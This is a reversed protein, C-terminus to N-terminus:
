GLAQISTIAVAGTVDDPVCGRSLDNVPKAMGQLIPGYAEAGALRQAAKYCINGAGLDPFIFINARGEIPSGPAKMGAVDPVYAADFQLEGDILVDSLNMEAIKTKALETAQIVKETADSKASGKTSYSLMAIRTDFGFQKATLATGVAIDALQEATPNEVLGCDAFLLTKDPWCMFFMSSVTRISGKSKIVQLAPRITDGTAHCAGAVLGDADDAKLMMTGFYIPNEVLKAAKEPTLGKHKRLDYLLNAYKQKQPATKPDLVQIKKIDAGAAKLDWTVRDVDGLITINAVNKDIIDRASQIIREDNGEPLVIHKNLQSAKSLTDNIFSM